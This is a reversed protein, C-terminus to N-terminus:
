RVAFSVPAKSASVVRAYVSSWTATAPAVVETAGPEGTPAITLTYYTRPSGAYRGLMFWYTAKVEEFDVKCSCREIGDPVRAALDSFKEDPSMARGSQTAVSEVVEPCRDFVGRNAPSEKEDVWPLRRAKRSPDVFEGSTIERSEKDLERSLPTDLPPPARSRLDFVFTAKSYGARSAADLTLAIDSWVDAESFLIILSTEEHLTKGPHTQEWARKRESRANQMRTVAEAPRSTDVTPVEDLLAQSGKLTLEPGLQVDEARHPEDLAVLKGNHSFTRALGAYGESAVDHMWKRLETVRTACRESEAKGHCGLGVVAIALIGMM